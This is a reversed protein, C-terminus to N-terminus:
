RHPVMLLPVPSIRAVKLAVSGLVLEQMAGLGQTAMAIMAVDHERAYTTIGAAPLGETVVTEIEAAGMEALQDAMQNLRVRDDSVQQDSAELDEAPEGRRHHVHLLTVRSARGVLLDKVREFAATAADSFDTPFLIHRSSRDGRVECSIGGDTECLALRVILVPVRSQQLLSMSTSGLLIRGLLSRGHSGVVIVDAGYDCAIDALRAAPSGHDLKTEVEFGGERIKEAEAALAKLAAPLLMPDYGPMHVLSEVHALVVHKLGIYRLAPLYDLVVSSPRSFDTGVIAKRFM